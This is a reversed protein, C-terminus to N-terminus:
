RPTSSAGTTGGGKSLLAAFEAEPLAKGQELRAMVERCATAKQSFLALEGAPLPDGATSKFSLPNTFRGGVEVRFDLHPGTANGTMGVYGIVQNQEVRAGAQIGRGFRSLHAYYTSIGGAHRVRILKGYGNVWGASVVTGDAVSVVPTGTPAAYDVGYHPRVTKFIPHLRHSTFGSSIRSYNLPSKLFARKLAQGNARYYGGRKGTPEYYFAEFREGANVYSGAVLRPAGVGRGDVLREELLCEFTDGDDTETTFDVDYSFVDCFSAVLGVPLGQHIMSNYLSGRVTGVIRRYVRDVAEEERWARLGSSDREVVFYGSADPQFEFRTLRGLRDSLLRYEDHPQVRRLDFLSGLRGIFAQTEDGAIGDHALAESLSAGRPVTGTMVCAPEQSPATSPELSLVKPGDKYPGRTVRFVLGAALFAVLAVLAVAPSLRLRSIAM